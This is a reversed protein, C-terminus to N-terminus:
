SKSEMYTPPPVGVIMISSSHLVISRARSNNEMRSTLESVFGFWRVGSITSCSAGRTWRKLTPTWLKSSLRSL